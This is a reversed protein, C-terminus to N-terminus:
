CNFNQKVPFGNLYLRPMGAVLASSQATVCTSTNSALMHVNYETEFVGLSEATSSDNRNYFDAWPTCPYNKCQMMDCFAAPMHVGAQLGSIVM